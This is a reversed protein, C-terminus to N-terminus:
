ARHADLREAAASLMHVKDFASRRREPNEAAIQLPQPQPRSKADVGCCDSSSQSLQFCTGAQTSPCSWSRLEVQDEEIRGPVCFLIVRGRQAQQAALSGPQQGVADHDDGLVPFLLAQFVAIAQKLARPQQFLAVRRQAEVGDGLGERRFDMLTFLMFCARIKM